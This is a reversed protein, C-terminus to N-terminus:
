EYQLIRETLSNLEDSLEQPLREGFIKHYNKIEAAEKLWDEKKIEFLSAIKEEPIELGYTDLAGAAPVFGIPTEKASGNGEIREFIWKIVRINEGYGPWIFKGNEDRRFWNIFFIKPLKNQEASKGIKIWHGFYDGM